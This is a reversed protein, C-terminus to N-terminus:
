NRHKHIQSHDAVNLHICQNLLKTCTEFCLRLSISSIIFSTLSDRGTKKALIDGDCKKSTPCILKLIGSSTMCSAMTSHTEAIPEAFAKTCPISFTSEEKVM